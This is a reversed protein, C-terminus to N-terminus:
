CMGVDPNQIIIAFYVVHLSDHGGYHPNTEIMRCYRPQIQKSELIMSIHMYQMANDSRLTHQVLPPQYRYVTSYQVNYACGYTPSSILYIFTISIIIHMELNNIIYLVLLTSYYTTLQILFRSALAISDRYQYWTNIQEDHLIMIM